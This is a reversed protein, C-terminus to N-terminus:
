PRTDETLPAPTHFSSPAYAPPLLRDPDICGMVSGDALRVMGDGDAAAASVDVPIIDVVRTALLAARAGIRVPSSRLLLMVNAAQLVSLGLLPAPDFVAYLDSVYGHMGRIADSRAGPTIPMPSWSAPSVRLIHRVDLLFRAEDLALVVALHGSEGAIVSDDRAALLATRERLIRTSFAQFFPDPVTTV